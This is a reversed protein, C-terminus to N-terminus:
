IGGARSRCDGNTTYPNIDEWAKNIDESINLNGLSAFRNSIKIQYQKRVELEVLRKLNFREVDFKQAAQKSVALRERVKALVLYHDTHCDAGRFSRVDLISSHWRRDILIHDIQNPTKGDPSTWYYKHINRHRFMMSKVVLNKSTAFNLVRVVNYNSDQHLSENGITSKFTDERGVKANFDGLLIKMHYKPFHDFVEELEEYFSDKSNDSKEETPVHANLVIINCWHGRLVIYSIRNSVFEVRKIASVIRQHVFFGTGLQYNEQGKGYFFSYEGARATGKRQGV